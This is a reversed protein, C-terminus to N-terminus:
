FSGYSVCAEWGQYAQFLKWAKVEGLRTGFPNSLTSYDWNRSSSGSNLALDTSLTKWQQGYNCDCDCSGYLLRSFALNMIISALAPCPCDGCGPLQRYDDQCGVWYNIKVRTPQNNCGCGARNVECWGKVPDYNALVPVVFGDGRTGDILCGTARKITCAQCTTDSCCTNTNEYLFEVLPVTTDEQQVGVMVTDVYIDKTLDLAKVSCGALEAQAPLREWLEPKILQWSDVLITIDFGGITDNPAVTVSKFPCIRWTAQGFHGTTFLGLACEDVYDASHLVLRATEAYGDSDDDAYLLSLDAAQVTGLNVWKKPMFGTIHDGIYYAPRGRLNRMDPGLDGFPIVSHACCYDGIGAGGLAKFSTSRMTPCIPRCLLSSLAVEADFINQALNERSLGGSSQWPYQMWIDQCEGCVPFITSSAAGAFHAPNLGALRAVASLCSLPAISARTM